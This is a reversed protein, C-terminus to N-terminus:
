SKGSGFLWWLPSEKMLLFILIISRKLAFFNLELWLLPNFTKLDFPTTTEVYRLVMWTICLQLSLRVTPCTTYFFRLIFFSCRGASSFILPKVNVSIIFYNTVAMTWHGDSCKKANWKKVWRCGCAPLCDGAVSKLLNCCNIAVTWIRKLSTEFILAAKPVRSGKTWLNASSPFFFLLFLWSSPVADVSHQVLSQAVSQFM